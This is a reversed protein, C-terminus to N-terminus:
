LATVQTQTKVREERAAALRCGAGALPSGLLRSGSVRGDVVGRRRGLCPGEEKVDASARTESGGVSM